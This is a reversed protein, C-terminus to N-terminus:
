PEECEAPVSVAGVPCGSPRTRNWVEILTCRNEEWWKRINRDHRELGKVNPLREGNSIDFSANQGAYRVHFHPPPHENSQIVVTMGNFSDVKEETLLRRGADDVIRGQRFSDRLAEVIDEPISVTYKAM